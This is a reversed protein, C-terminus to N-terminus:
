IHAGTSTSRIFFDELRELGIIEEPVGEGVLACGSGSGGGSASVVADRIRTHQRLSTEIEGLEIRYGQIKVQFDSRGLFEINGDQLYYTPMSALDILTANM